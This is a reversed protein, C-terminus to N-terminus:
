QIVSDRISNAAIMPTFGENNWYWDKFEEEEGKKYVLHLDSCGRDNELSRNKTIAEGLLIVALQRWDSVEDFNIRFDPSKKARGESIRKGLKYEFNDLDSCIAIGVRGDELVTVSAGGTPSVKDSRVAYFPEVEGAVGDRTRFHFTHKGAEM